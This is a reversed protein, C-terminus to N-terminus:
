EDLVEDQLMAALQADTLQSLDTADDVLQVQLEDTAMKLVKGLVQNREPTSKYSPKSAVEISAAIIEPLAELYAAKAFRLQMAQLRPDSAMRTIKAPGCGLLQALEAKTKPQRQERTQVAWAVYAAERWKFGKALMAAYLPAWAMGELAAEFARLEAAHGMDQQAKSPQEPLLSAQELTM